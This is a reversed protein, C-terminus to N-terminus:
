KVTERFNLSAAPSVFVIVICRSASNPMTATVVSGGDVTFILPVITPSVGTSNRSGAVRTSISKVLGPYRVTRRATTGELTRVVRILSFSTGSACARRSSAGFRKVLLSPDSNIRKM